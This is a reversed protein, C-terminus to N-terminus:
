ASALQGSQDGDMDYGSGNDHKNTKIKKNIKFPKKNKIM